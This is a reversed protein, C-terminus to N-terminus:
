TTGGSIRSHTKSFTSTSLSIIVASTATAPRVHRRIPRRTSSSNSTPVQGCRVFCYRVSAEPAVALQRQMFVPDAFSGGDFVHECGLVARFFDVAAELSPVTLGVHEIGRLGPMGSPPVHHPSPSM